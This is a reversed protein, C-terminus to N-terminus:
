IMDFFGEAGWENLWFGSRTAEEHVGWEGWTPAWFALILTIGTSSVLSIVVMAILLGKGIKVHAMPNEACCQEPDHMREEDERHHLNKEEEHHKEQLHQASTSHHMHHGNTFGNGNLPTHVAHPQLHKPKHFCSGCNREMHHLERAYLIGILTFGIHSWIGFFIALNYPLVGFNDICDAFVSVASWVHGLAGIFFVWQKAWLLLLVMLFDIGGGVVAAVVFVYGMTPAFLVIPLMIFGYCITILMAPKYPIHLLHSTILVEIMNHFSAVVFTFRDTYGQQFYVLTGFLGISLFWWTTLGRFSLYDRDHQKRKPSVVHLTPNPMFFLSMVAGALPALVTVAFMAERTHVERPSLRSYSEGGSVITDDIIKILTKFPM